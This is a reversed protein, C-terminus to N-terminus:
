TEEVASVAAAPDPESALEQGAPQEPAPEIADVTPVAVVYELKPIVRWHRQCNEPLEDILPKPVGGDIICSHMIPKMMQAMEIATIDEHPRFLMRDFELNLTVPEAQEEDM